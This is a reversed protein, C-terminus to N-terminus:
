LEQANMEELTDWQSIYENDEEKIHGCILCVDEINNPTWAWPVHKILVYFHKIKCPEYNNIRRMMDKRWALPQENFDTM